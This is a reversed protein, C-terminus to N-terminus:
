PLTSQFYGQQVHEANMKQLTVNSTPYTDPQDSPMSDTLTPELHGIYEGKNFRIHKNTYNSVLDNVSTKGKICQIGSIIIIYPDGGKTSFEDTIFLWITRFQRDQLKSQYLVM